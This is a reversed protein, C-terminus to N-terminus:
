KQKQYKSKGHEMGEKMGKFVHLFNILVDEEHQNLHMKGIESKMLDAITQKKCILSDITVNHFQAIQYLLDIPIKRIGSEYNVIASKTLGFLSGFQDQTMGKAKRLHKLNQGLNKYFIETDL